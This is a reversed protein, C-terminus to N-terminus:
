FLTLKGETLILYVLFLTFSYIIIKSSLFFVYTSHQHSFMHDIKGLDRKTSKIATMNHKETNKLMKVTDCRVTGCVCVFLDPFMM